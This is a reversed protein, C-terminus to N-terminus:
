CIICISPRSFNFACLYSYVTTSNRNNETSRYIGEGSLHGRLRAYVVDCNISVHLFGGALVGVGLNLACYGSGAGGCTVGALGNARIAAFDNAFATCGSNEGVGFFGNGALSCSAGFVTQGVTLFAGNTAFCDFGLFGNFGIAVVHAIIYCCGSRSASCLTLFSAITGLAIVIYGAFDSDNIVGFAVSNDFIFISGRTSNVAAVIGYNVAQYTCLFKRSNSGGNLSITVGRNNVCCFGGSAFACAKGFTRVTGSTAFNKDSLFFYCCFAMVKALPFGCSRGGFFFVAYFSAFTFVTICGFGVDDRSQTVFAFQMGNVDNGFYFGSASLGTKSGTLFTGTTSCNEYRLFGNGSGTMSVAFFYSGGSTGNVTVGSVGTCATIVVCIILNGSGTVLQNCAFYCGSRSAGGVTNLNVFTLVAFMAFVFVNGSGAYVSGACSCCTSGRLNTSNTFCFQVGSQIVIHLLSNCGYFGSAAFFAAGLAFLARSTVILDFRLNTGGGALVSGARCNNFVFNVSGTSFFAAVLVYNVARCLSAACFNRSNSGGNVRKTMVEICVAIAGSAIMNYLEDNGIANSKNEGVVFEGGCGIGVAVGKCTPRLLFDFFGSGLRSDDLCAFVDAICGNEISNICACYCNGTNLLEFFYCGIGTIPGTRVKNNIFISIHCEIATKAFEVSCSIGNGYSNRIANNCKTILQIVTRKDYDFGGVTIGDLGSTTIVNALSLIIITKSGILFGCIIVSDCDVIIASYINYTTTCIEAEISGRILVTETVILTARVGVLFSNMEVFQYLFAGSCCIVNSKATVVAIGCFYGIGSTGSVTVGGVGAFTAIAISCVYNRSGAVIVIFVYGSGGAGFLTVGGVGASATIFVDVGVNISEGVYVFVLVVLAINAEISVCATFVAVVIVVAIPAAISDGLTYVVIFIIVFAINAARNEGGACVVVVIMIAINAVSGQASTEVLVSVVLAVNTAILHGLAFVCIRDIVLTIPAAFGYAFAFIGVAIVFTVNATKGDAIARIFVLVVLAVNAAILHGLAFIGVLIVEAIPAANLVRLTHVDVGVVVAIPATFLNGLTYVVVVIM